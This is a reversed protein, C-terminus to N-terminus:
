LEEEESSTEEEMTRGNGRGLFPKRHDAKKEDSTKFHLRDKYRLKPFQGNGWAEHIDDLHKYQIDPSLYMVGSPEHYIVANLRGDLYRMAQLSTQLTKGANAREKIQELTLTSELPWKRDIWDQIEQTNDVHGTWMERGYVHGKCSVEEFPRISGGHPYVTNFNHRALNYEMMRERYNEEDTSGLLRPDQLLDGVHERM